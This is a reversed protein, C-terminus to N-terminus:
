SREANKLASSVRQEARKKIHQKVAWNFNNVLSESRAASSDILPLTRQYDDLLARETLGPLSEVLLQYFHEAEARHGAENLFIFNERLEIHASENEALQRLLFINCLTLVALFSLVFRHRRLFQVYYKLPKVM